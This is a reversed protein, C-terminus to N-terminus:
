DQHRIKIIGSSDIKVMVPLTWGDGESRSARLVVKILDQGSMLPKLDISEEGSQFTKLKSKKKNKIGYVDIQYETKVDKMSPVSKRLNRFRLHGDVMDFEDLPAVQDFWFQGVKDRRKMLTEAVYAEDKPDSLQGAHVAARVDDDSFATILKAAWFGDAATLYKFAYHPLQVRFSEPDFHDSEFNGVAPSLDSKSGWVRWRKQWPKEWFGFSLFAKIAEGYDMMHEFTFMPYLTAAGLAANFDILYHKLEKQGDQGILMDLTNSERVDYNNLWSGFVALARIERRHEHDYRDAPDGKRRGYFFFNGMNEGPLIKSASARYRGQGDQPLFLLYEELREQTLPKKFGTDDVIQAEPGPVLKDADFTVITYQPVNYGIAYYFRSAIIEASTQLEFNDIDDFKLLYGDGKADKVFFGPHLGEFKGDIITLPGSLDPGATEAYGTEIEKAPLRKKAHRNTFFASDPVEDFVNVNQARTRKGTLKQYLNEFHLYSTFERYINQDFVDQYLGTEVKKVEIGEARAATAWLFAMAVAVLARTSKQVNRSMSEVM